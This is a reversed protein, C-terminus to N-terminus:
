EGSYLLGPLPEGPLEDITAFEFGRDRLTSIVLPLAEATDALNAHLMLIAGPFAMSGLRRALEDKGPFPFDPAGINSWLLVSHGERSAALAVAQDWSGYPPRFYLSRRGTISAILDATRSIEARMSGWTLDTTFDAHTFSHNEVQHGDAHMRQVIDPHTSVDSGVVFFTAKVGEVSLIELIRGTVVPDPGDNFTLALLERDQPEPDAVAPHDNAPPQGTVPPLYTFWGGEHWTRGDGPGAESAPPTSPEEPVIADPAEEPPPVVLISQGAVIHDPTSLNNIRILEPVAVGFRRSISYLTDGKSVVYRGQTDAEGVTQPLNEPAAPVSELPEDGASHHRPDPAHSQSQLIASTLAQWTERGVVGDVTLNHSAQFSRVAEQTMPGMQGDVPGPDLGLADLAEQLRVVWEGQAGPRLLPLRSVESEIWNPLDSAMVAFTCLSALVVVLVLVRKLM